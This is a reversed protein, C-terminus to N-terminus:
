NTSHSNPFGKEFYLKICINLDEILNMRLAQSPTVWAFGKHEQERIVIKIKQTISFHYIYFVFDEDSNVIFLKKFFVVKDIPAIIGTEEAIERLLGCKPSESSELKGAPLGWTDGHPKNDQRHLLLFKGDQECFCSVVRLPSSFGKPRKTKTM